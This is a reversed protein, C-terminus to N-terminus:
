LLFVNSKVLTVECPNGCKKCTVVLYTAMDGYERGGEGIVSANFDRWILRGHEPCVAIITYGTM